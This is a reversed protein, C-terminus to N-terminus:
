VDELAPIRDGLKRKKQDRTTSRTTPAIPPEVPRRQTRKTKTKSKVKPKTTKAKPPPFVADREKKERALSRLIDGMDNQKTENDKAGNRRTEHGVLDRLDRDDYFTLKLRQMEKEQKEKTRRWVTRLEGRQKIRAEAKSKYSSALDLLRKLKVLEEPDHRGLGFYISEQFLVVKPQAKLLGMLYSRDMLDFLHGLSKSAPKIARKEDNEPEAIVSSLLLVLTSLGKLASDLSHRSKPDILSALRTGFNVYIEDKVRQM